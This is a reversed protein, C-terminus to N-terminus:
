LNINEGQYFKLLQINLLANYKSQLRDQQASLLEDRGTMLEVINKLGNKLQEDLLNYSDQASKVKSTAAVYKQQNNYANLWYEEVTSYLKKEQDQLQLESDQKSLKAKQVNTKNQKNDFIPISLSVGASASLNQRMQEGASERSGSYHSDGIGATLSISPYCGAKAIDINLAAADISLRSSQIEPRSALAKQYVENMNPILQMTADDSAGIGSVDFTSEDTIELLEKLQRKYDAIQTQMSVCDYQASAAQSELQTLDAKSIQGQDYMEKGRDYQSQATNLMFSDVKLADKSYLIQVYYQAIQVQITNATTQTTLASIQNQLKQAQINKRNIGGNWVTWSANLGYSGNETRKNSSSNAIGNAVINTETKQLPRYDVTQTTSFSLSPFLEAKKQTLDVAGQEETIKNQKLQINHTLAYDICQQLSWTTSDQGYAAIAEFLCAAYMLYNKYSM